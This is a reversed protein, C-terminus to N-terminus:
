GPDDDDYMCYGRSREDRNYDPVYRDVFRYTSRRGRSFTQQSGPEPETSRNFPAADGFSRKAPRKQVHSENYQVHRDWDQLRTYPSRLWSSLEHLFLRANDRGLFDGLMEEAQGSCGKIEVTKLIAVIYELLFEANNARRVVLSGDQEVDHSLFDFVQLERRIFSRARSVLGPDQNFLAPNLIKYRSLRNSGVHLSYLSHHYIHKRRLLATDATTSEASAARSDPGWPRPQPRRLLPTRVGHDRTSPPSPRGPIEAVSYVKYDVETCFDYHVSKIPSKCLPCVPQEQLWSVLCLFDFTAHKCPVAIARERVADLCIVCPDKEDQRTIKVEQLTTRLVQRQVDEKAM